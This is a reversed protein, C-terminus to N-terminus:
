ATQFSLNATQSLGRLDIGVGDVSISVAPTYGLRVVIPEAGPILQDQGPHLTATFLTRGTPDTIQVWCTGTAHLTIQFPSRVSVTVGNNSRAVVPAAVVEATTPPTPDTTPVVSAPAAAPATKAAAGSGRHGGLGVAVVLVVLVVIAVSGFAAYTSSSEAVARRIREPAARAPSAPGESAAPEPGAWEPTTWDPSTIEVAKVADVAEVTARVPPVRPTSPHIEITARERPPTPPPASTRSKAPRRAGSRTRSTAATARRTTGRRAPRTGAPAESLIRIHESPLDPPPEVLSQAPRPHEALDRLADIARLHREMPAVNDRGFIYRALTAAGVLGAFVGLAWMSIVERDFRRGCIENGLQHRM